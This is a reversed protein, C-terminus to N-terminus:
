GPAAGSTNTHTLTGGMSDVNGGSGKHSSNSGKYPSGGLTGSSGNGSAAGGLQCGEVALKIDGAAGGSLCKAKFGVSHYIDDTSWLLTEMLADRVVQFQM